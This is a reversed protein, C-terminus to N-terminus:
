CSRIITFISLYGGVKRCSYMLATQGYKPEIIDVMSREPELTTIAFSLGYWACVHLSDVHKRVDWSDQGGKNTFWAAHLCASLYKSDEILRIAQEELLSNPGLFSLAERVHDGWFESAYYLFPYENNRSVWYEDKCTERPVAVSLYQLCGRAIELDITSFWKHRSEDEQLHDELTRHVLKVEVGYDTQQTIILGSTIELIVNVDMLANLIDPETFDEDDEGLEMVALAHQLAKMSLPRRARSIVGLIRFAKARDDKDKQKEIRRMSERYIENTEEPFSELIRKLGIPTKATKLLDLYLRAFLFRGSSKDVITDVIQRPLKPDKQCLSQFRSMDIKDQGASREDVLVPNADSMELGIERRVYQEIDERPIKVEIERRGYPMSLTHSTDNCGLGQRKCTLCLDYDGNNCVQCKYFIKIDQRGCRDCDITGPIEVDGEIPRSMFVLNSKTPLLGRLEKRLRIRDRPQLEDLADVVIYFCSHRDLESVLIKRIEHDYSAPTLELLKVNRYLAKLEDSIPRLEEIQIIQKLLSKMINSLTQVTAAKYDLYVSLILPPKDTRSRLHHSLISSLVTKGVM